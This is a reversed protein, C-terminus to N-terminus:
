FEDSNRREILSKTHNTQIVSEAPFELSRLLNVTRQNQKQASSKLTGMDSIVNRCQGSDHIEKRLINKPTLCRPIATSSHSGAAEAHSERRRPTPHEIQKFVIAQIAFAIAYLTPSLLICYLPAKPNKSFSNHIGFTSSILSIISIISLVGIVKSNVYIHQHLWVYTSPLLSAGSLGLFATAIWLISEEEDSTLALLCGSCLLLGLNLVIFQPSTCCKYALGVAVFRGLVFCGWFLALVDRKVDIDTSLRDNAFKSIMIPYSGEVLSAFFVLPMSSIIGFVFLGPGTSLNRSDDFPVKLMFQSPSFRYLCFWAVFALAILCAMLTHSTILKQSADSKLHDTTTYNVLHDFESYGVSSVSITVVKGLSFLFFLFQVCINCKKGFLGFCYALIGTMCFQICIGNVFFNVGLGFANSCFPVCGTTLTMVILMFSLMMLKEKPLEFYDFGVGGFICGLIYGIYCAKFFVPMQKVLKLGTIIEILHMNSTPLVINSGIFLITIGMLICTIVKGERERSSVIQEEDSSSADEQSINTRSM